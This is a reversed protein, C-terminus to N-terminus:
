ESVLMVQTAKILATTEAGEALGMNEASQTTVTAVMELGGPMEITVESNVPGKKLSKVKGRFVNRASFKM